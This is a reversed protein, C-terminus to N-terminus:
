TFLLFTDLGSLAPKSAGWHSLTAAIRWSECHMWAPAHSCFHCAAGFVRESNSRQASKLSLKLHLKQCGTQKAKTVFISHIRISLYQVELFQALLSPSPKAHGLWSQLSMCLGEFDKAWIAPFNYSWTTSCLVNRCTTVHESRSWQRGGPRHWLSQRCAPSWSLFCCTHRLSVATCVSLLVRVLVFVM